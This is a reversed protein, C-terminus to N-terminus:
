QKLQARFSRMLASTLQAKEDEHLHGFLDHDVRDVAARGRSLLERGRETVALEATRGRGPDTLREVAGQEELQRLTAQMSQPTIGARRALESYSLGPQRSLHGLASLHRMTLGDAALEADVRAAARRGLSIVLVAAVAEPVGGGGAARGEVQTDDADHPRGEM